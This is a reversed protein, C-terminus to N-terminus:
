LSSRVILHTPIYEQIKERTLVFHAVRKGMESFDTSISTLGNGIVEMAPTDNFAVLGVDVGPTLGKQRFFKVMQVLAKHSVVLYATGKDIQHLNLSSVVLGEMGATSCYHEFHPICTRPHFSDDSLYLVLKQYKGILDSGQALSNYMSRDFDQLVYSYPTGQCQGWDLILVRSPDLTSVSESLPGNNYNMLIFLSYRSKADQIITDFLHKNYHHFLVDVQYDPSLEEVFSDYLADKFPSFQDLLMLVRTLSGAVYYGKQPTSDVSGRAKMQQYAKFVTDRSIRHRKSLENVSPLADGPIYEGTTIAKNLADVVQQVKTSGKDFLIDM